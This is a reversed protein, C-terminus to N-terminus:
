HFPTWVRGHAYQGRFKFRHVSVVDCDAFLLKSDKTWGFLHLECKIAYYVCAMVARAVVVYYSGYMGFVSRAVIPYGVHYTAGSRSNIAQFISSICQSGFIVLIAQWWNLGIGVM